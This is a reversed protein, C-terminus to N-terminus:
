AVELIENNVDTDVQENSLDLGDRWEGSPAIITAEAATAAKYAWLIYGNIPDYSATASGDIFRKFDKHYRNFAFNDSFQLRGGVYTLVRFGSDNNIMGYMDKGIKRISGWDKVGYEADVNEQGALILIVEGVEAIVETNFTNTPVSFTSHNCLIAIDDRFKIIAQIQDLFIAVQLDERYYGTLYTEWAPIPSHYLREQGLIAGFLMAGQVVGTSCDPLAVHFRNKLSFGAIRARLSPTSSYVDDRIRDRYTRSVPDFTVGMSSIIAPAVSPPTAEVANANTYSTIVTYEGNAWFLIKGVDAAVFTHGATRTVTTGTQSATMISGGGVAAPQSAVAGSGTTTVQTASLYTAITDSTADQWVITDGVDTAEFEGQSATVTSAARSCTFAKAVPHDRNWIFLEKSNAYGSVPDIGDKGINLTCSIQYHTWCGQVAPYTLTGITVEATYTPNTVTGTGTECSLAATGIDTGANGASAVTITGGEEPSSFIFHGNTAISHECTATAFEGGYSRMAIQITEAVESLSSIGTFDCEINNEVGGITIKFQGDTIAAWEAATDYAAGLAGGTLVGYTIAADGVPRTTYVTGFDINSTNVATTGSLQEIVIGTDTRQRTISTGSLRAMGYTYRKGYVLTATENVSDLLTVPVAENIKFYTVPDKDLDVKFIGNNNFIIVYNKVESFVSATNDLATVGIQYCQNWGSLSIDVAVYLLNGLQMVVSRKRKHSYYGNPQGHIWAATSAAHATTGEVRIVTTSVYAKIREHVGDDYVVYRGVDAAVFNAGVTATVTEGSKTVSYGTRLAPLTTDSWRQTGSRPIVRKAFIIYNQSQHVANAPISSAPLDKFAGASFDSAGRIDGQIRSIKREDQQITHPEFNRM